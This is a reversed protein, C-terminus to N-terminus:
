PSGSSTNESRRVSRELGDLILDLGFEFEARFDYGPQLVYDTTFETLHPFAGDPLPEILSTALDALEAGGTAPLSAEQLAFGYTYSDLLAYAHATMELSLGGRRLCGLVADHHGLTEPGPTTRSEMLPAAWPHRSLVERASLCRHRIAPKWGLDAPPRDIEAFVRDVMGDLIADKSPLHHYITMPKTDLADALKRITLADTGILDALAMAGDLVRDATLRRRTTDPSTTM